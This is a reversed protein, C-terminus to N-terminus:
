KKIKLRSFSDKFDNLFDEFEPYAEYFWKHITSREKCLCFVRYLADALEAKKCAIIGLKLLLAMVAIFLRPYSVKIPITYRITEEYGYYQMITNRYELFFQQSFKHWQKNDIEDSKRLFDAAEMVTKIPISEKQVNQKFIPFSM